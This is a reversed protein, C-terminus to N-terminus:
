QVLRVSDIIKFDVLFTDVINAEMFYSTHKNLVHM